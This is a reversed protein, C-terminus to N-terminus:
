EDWKVPGWPQIEAWAKAEELTLGEGGGPRCQYLWGDPTEPIPIREDIQDHDDYRSAALRAPKAVIEVLRPVIGDYLWTGRAVVKFEGENSM